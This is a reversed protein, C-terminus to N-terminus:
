RRDDDTLQYARPGVQSDVGPRGPLGSQADAHDGDVLEDEPQAAPAAGPEVGPEVAEDVLHAHDVDRRGDDAPGALQAGQQLGVALGAGLGVHQDGGGAWTCPRVSTVQLVRSKWPQPIATSLGKTPGSARQHPRM